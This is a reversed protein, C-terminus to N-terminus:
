LFSVYKSSIVLYNKMNEKLEMRVGIKEMPYIWILM